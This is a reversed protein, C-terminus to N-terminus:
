AEREKLNFYALLLMILSIGTFLAIFYNNKYNVPLALLKVSFLENSTHVYFIHSLIVMLLFLFVTILGFTFVSKFIAFKKFYTAGAFAFLSCMTIALCTVYLDSKLKVEKIVSLIDYNKVTESVPEFIGYFLYACKFTFWYLLFLLVSLAVIRVLFQVLYKELISAPLLIYSISKSSSRLASFTTGASIVLGSIFFFIFIPQYYANYFYTNIKFNTNLQPYKAQYEIRDALANLNLLDFIFLIIFLVVIALVYIKGNLALDYKLCNVFRKASFYKQLNM